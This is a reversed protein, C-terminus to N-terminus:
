EERPQNARGTPLEALNARLSGPLTISCTNEMVKSSSRVPGRPTCYNRRREVIKEEAYGGNRKNIIQESDVTGKSEESLTTCSCGAVASKVGGILLQFRDAPKIRFGVLIEGAKAALIIGVELKKKANV